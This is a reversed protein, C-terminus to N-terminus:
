YESYTSAYENIGTTCLYRCFYECRFVYVNNHLNVIWSRPYISICVFQLFPFKSPKENIITVINKKIVLIDNRSDRSAKILCVAYRFFPRYLFFHVGRVESYTRRNCQKAHVQTAQLFLIRYRIEFSIEDKQVSNNEVQERRWKEILLCFYSQDSVIRPGLDM